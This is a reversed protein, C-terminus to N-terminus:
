RRPPDVDDDEPSGEGTGPRDSAEQETQDQVIITLREDDDAESPLPAAPADLPAAEADLTEIPTPDHILQWPADAPLGVSHGSPFEIVTGNGDRQVSVGHQKVTVPGGWTFDGGVWVRDPAVVCVGLVDSLLKLPVIGGIHHDEGYGKAEDAHYFQSLKGERSLVRTLGDLSRKVLETAENRLGARVMGEGILSLWYMWIGGGGRANSPDFNRDSASVMTLGNPRFFESEDLALRVLAAAREQGLRGCFLPMLANVDLRSSDVTRAYIKYVRSLGAVTIRQIHSLPLATTYLGQRNQWDFEAAEAEIACKSGQADRGELKLRIRPRQSVGGVIRVTVRAPALLAQDLEHVQDGAGASLIEDAEITLHSDRDRYRYHAGDWFTELGAEMMERQKSLVNVSEDEGLEAAIECLADAESILYALLDPTEMQRINAGQAWFQGRGFTPFAVYGMQRESRWEPVGDDDADMDSSLWRGFFAVLAPYVEALFDRDGARQYVTLSLRALLPMMLLGQRQGGLGPQRDIFGSDDQTTLYNRIIGKALEGDINAIAGGALYALTPDQGSWARIHDGGDGRRSWGRNGVRNAVFSPHPLHETPRMFAKVLHAYSLDILRDWDDNGSSIKPIAAANQDIEEFHRKWPRSMWNMALSFSDRMDELGAVVFPLRMPQGPQLDLVRGIKPSSIRGGYVEASAGELTLVPNIEGFQGLHLALTGDGLTLVNLRVNRSNIVAHGFLDLQLRIADAGTNSLTIEGGAARSEMAWFRAVLSVDAVPSAEVQMFNPAFYAIVPKQAFNWAQYVLGEDARFMPVLSVLGARGGFQTQFAIAAEDRQGLRVTWVQDDCYDTRSSRADAGLHYEFPTSADIHQRRLNRM